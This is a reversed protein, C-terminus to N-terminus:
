AKKARAKRQAPKKEVPAPHIRYTGPKAEGRAIAIGEQAADLLKQGFKSM